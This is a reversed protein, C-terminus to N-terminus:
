ATSANHPITSIHICWFDGVQVGDIKQNGGWEDKATGFGRPDLGVDWAPGGMIGQGAQERAPLRVWSREPVLRALMDHQM